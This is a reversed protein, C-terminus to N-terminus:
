RALLRDGGVVDRYLQRYKAAPRNWSVDSRLANRVISRWHRRDRYLELARVMAAFLSWPEGVRFIFGNGQSTAPDFESVSEQLGGTASVIPVCGYRMAEMPVIGAPEFKSPIVILDAGAYIQRPLSFNRFLHTRVKRPFARSFAEIQRHLVDDGSGVVIFQSDSEELLHSASELLTDIGKQSVLRGVFALIPVDRRPLGVMKQLIPKNDLRRRATRLSFRVGINPDTRPNFAQVDLGNLIGVLRHGLQKLPRELGEGYRPTAIEKAYGQSVTTVTDALQIGRLLANHTRLAPDFLSALPGSGDDRQTPLVHRMNIAAQHALNHITYITKLSGLASQYRPSRRLSEILYGTHWDHCHIITPLWQYRAKQRLLWELCGLSLLAFRIHDDRYEYVNARLEFYERNELFYAPLGTQDTVTKVNCILSRPSESGAPEGTPVRLDRTQYILPSGPTHEIFGYKPLFIRVDDGLKRLAQALPTVVQSLGGVQAYPAAEAAVM